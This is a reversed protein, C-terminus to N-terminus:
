QARQVDEQQVHEEAETLAEDVDMLSSSLAVARGKYKPRPADGEESSVLIEM